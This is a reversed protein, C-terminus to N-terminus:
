PPNRAIPEGRSTFSLNHTKDVGVMVAEVIPPNVAAGASWAVIFSAGSGGEIDRKEVLYSATQLPALTIPEKTLERIQRGQTDYYRVQDVRIPLEPDTNRVSLTVELLFAQGGRSYIHSYAPVYVARGSSTAPLSVAQGPAPQPPRFSLRDEITELRSGVYYMALIIAVLAIAGVISLLLPAKTERETGSQSSM